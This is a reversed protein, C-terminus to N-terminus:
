SLCANIDNKQQETLGADFWDKGLMIILHEKNRDLRSQEEETLSLNTKLENILNVSDFAASISRQTQDETTEIQPITSM